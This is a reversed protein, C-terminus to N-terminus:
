EKSAGRTPPSATPQTLAMPRSGVIERIEMSTPDRKAQGLRRATGSRVVGSTRRGGQPPPPGDQPHPGALYPRLPSAVPLTSLRM